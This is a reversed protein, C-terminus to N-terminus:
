GTAKALPPRHTATPTRSASWTDEPTASGATDTPTVTPASPTHDPWRSPPESVSASPAPTTTPAPTPAPSTAPRPPAAPRDDTPGHPWLVLVLGLGAGALVCGATRRAARARRRARVGARLAERHRPEFPVPEPDQRLLGALRREFHDM